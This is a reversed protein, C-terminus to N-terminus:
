YTSVKVDRPQQGSDYDRAHAQSYGREEDRYNSYYGFAMFVCGGILLFGGLCLMLPGLVRRLDAAVYRGSSRLKSVAEALNYWLLFRYTQIEPSSAATTTARTLRLYGREEDRDDLLLRFGHVRLRGILLFGGLCLMLPGLVRRLDAGRYREYNEDATPPRVETYVIGTVVAGSILLLLGVGVLCMTCLTVATMNGVRFARFEAQTM